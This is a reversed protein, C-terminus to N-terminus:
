HFLGLWGFSDGFGFVFLIWWVWSHERHVLLECCCCAHHLGCFLRWFTWSCFERLEGFPFFFGVIGEREMMGIIAMRNASDELSYFEKGKMCTITPSTAFICAPNLLSISRACIMLFNVGPLCIRRIKQEQKQLLVIIILLFIWHLGWSTVFHLPLNMLFLIVPFITFCCLCQLDQKLYAIVLRCMFVSVRFAAMMRREWPFIWPHAAVSPCIM